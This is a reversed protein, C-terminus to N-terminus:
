RGEWCERIVKRTGDGGFGAVVQLDNDFSRGWCGRIRRM